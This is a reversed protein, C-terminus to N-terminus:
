YVYEVYLNIKGATLTGNTWMKLQNSASTTPGVLLTAAGTLVGELPTALTFSSAALNAKMDQAGLLQFSLTASTPLPATVVYVYSRVAMGGVPIVCANGQDDVLSILGATGGLVSFDYVCKILNKNQNVATGLGELPSAVNAKTLLAQGITNNPFLAHAQFGILVVVASALFGALYKKM